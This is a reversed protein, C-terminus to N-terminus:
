RFSHSSQLAATLQFMSSREFRWSSIPTKEQSGRMSQTHRLGFHPMAFSSPDRLTDDGISRAYAKVNFRSELPVGDYTNYRHNFQHFLKPEYLPLMQDRGNQFVNGVLDWGQAELEEKTAFLDSDGSMDFM